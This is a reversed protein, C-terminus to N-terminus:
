QMGGRGQGGAGLPTWALAQSRAGPPDLVLTAGPNQRSGRFPHILLEGLPPASPSNPLLTPGM